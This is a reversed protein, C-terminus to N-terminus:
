EKGGVHAQMLAVSPRRCIRVRRAYIRSEVGVQQCAQAFLALLAPSHNTFDYSPYVYRGTRNVFACGDSRFCGRIFRWPHEAVLTAQWPELDMSREHKKGPGHQPLLCALHSWYVSLVTTAAGDAPSSGVRNGPFCRSLLDRAEHIITPYATDLSLRLRQTRPTATVHGDGLYLGLLEAYDGRTVEAPRM